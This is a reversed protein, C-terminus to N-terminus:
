APTVGATAAGTTANVASVVRYGAATCTTPNDVNDVVAVFVRDGVAMGLKNGDSFYGAGSVTVLTDATFYAWEKAMGDVAQDTLKLKTRDYAM